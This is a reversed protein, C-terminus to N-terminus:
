RVRHVVTEIEGLLVESHTVHHPGERAVFHRRDRRLVVLGRREWPLVDLLHTLEPQETDRPGFFDATGTEVRDAEHDRDLFEGLHTGRVGDGDGRVRREAGRGDDVEAGRRLDLAVDRQQGTALHEAAEAKGFFACSAIGAARTGRRHLLVAIVEEVAALAEDGM